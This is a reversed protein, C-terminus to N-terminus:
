PSTTTAARGRPRMSRTPRPTRACRGGAPTPWASALALVEHLSSYNSAKANAYQRLKEVHGLGYRWKDIRVPYTGAVHRPKLWGYITYYRTRYMPPRRSPRACTCRPHRTSGANRRRPRTGGAAPFRVRYYTKSVPRQIFSFTGGAGTTQSAVQQYSAGAATSKSELIVQQGVRRGRREQVGRRHRFAYGYGLSSYSATSLTIASAPDPAFSATYTADSTVNTDTRTM